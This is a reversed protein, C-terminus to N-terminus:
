KSLGEHSAGSDPVRLLVSQLQKILAINETHGTMNARIHGRVACGLLYFDGIIDLIKHRVCEDPFRLPTNNIITGDGILLVNTLRGGEILGLEHMKEVEKVFAFTRAPAIEHLYGRGDIHEYTYEQIGLPPPYVLRYTIRFGDYPEILIFKKESHVQGIAYCRDIVIDEVSAAQEVVGADEILHCFAAASGDMIPVENSIKVLANTIRYAHLASMLHEVTKAALCHHRLSTCFDTSEICDVSALMTKGTTINQFLIGSDPPLPALVLGTKLGSQLGQGYLVAGRGLTRQRRAKDLSEARSLLSLDQPKRVHQLALRTRVPSVNSILSETATNSEGLGQQRSLSPASQAALEFAREVTVLLRRLSFPKELYDFAGLRTAHIATAIDGYGSMMIVVIDPHGTRLTHLIEVGDVGPLWVDLLIVEPKLIEVCDLVDEGASLSSVKWGEDGLISALSKLLNEDDDVILIRGTKM